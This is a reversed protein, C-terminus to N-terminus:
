TKPFHFFILLQSYGESFFYITFSISLINIKASLILSCSNIKMNEFFLNIQYLTCKIGNIMLEQNVVM